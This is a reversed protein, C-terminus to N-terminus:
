VSAIIDLRVAIALVVHMRNSLLSASRMTHCDDHVLPHGRAAM